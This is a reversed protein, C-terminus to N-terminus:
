DEGCDGIEAIIQVVIAGVFLGVAVTGFAILPILWHIM